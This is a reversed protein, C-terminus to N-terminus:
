LFAEAASSFRSSDFDVDRVLRDRLGVHFVSKFGERLEKMQEPYMNLRVPQGPRAVGAEHLARGFVVDFVEGAAHSRASFEESRKRAVSTPAMLKTLTKSLPKAPPMAQQRIEDRDLLSRWRRRETATLLMLAYSNAM